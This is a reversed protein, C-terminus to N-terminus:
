WLHPTAFNISISTEFKGDVTFLSGNTIQKGTPDIVTFKMSEFPVVESAFGTLLVSQDLFYENQDTQISFISDVTDVIEIIESVVSFNTTTSTGAYNVTVDYTGESIGLVQVLDLTTEYNLNSDPYLSVAQEFNPGSINILIPESQFTPIEVYVKESVTGALLQLKM